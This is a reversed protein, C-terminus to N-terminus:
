SQNGKPHVPQIEKCDLPSELTAGSLHHREPTKVSPQPQENLSGLLAVGPTQQVGWGGGWHEATQVRVPDQRPGGQATASARGM